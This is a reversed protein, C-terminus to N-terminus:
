DHKVASKPDKKAVVELKDQTWKSPDIGLSLGVRKLVHVPTVPYDEEAAV